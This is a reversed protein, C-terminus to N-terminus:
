GSVDGCVFKKVLFSPFNSKQNFHKLVSLKNRAIIVNKLKFLSFQSQNVSSRLLLRQRSDNSLLKLNFDPSIPTKRLLTKKPHLITV